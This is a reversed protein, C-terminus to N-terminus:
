TIEKEPWEIQGRGRRLPPKHPLTAEIGSFPRVIWSHERASNAVSHCQSNHPNNKKKKRGSTLIIEQM